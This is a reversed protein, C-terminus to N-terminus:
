EDSLPVGYDDRENSDDENIKQLSELADNQVQM